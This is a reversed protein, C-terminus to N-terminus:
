KKGMQRFKVVARRWDTTPMAVTGSSYSGSKDISQAVFTRGTLTTFDAITLHGAIGVGGGIVCGKGITTSGAVGVMAAMATGAGIKVNHAIQVLNDIIVDDGIVTDDVAGRDICTNAGVRVRDGIVVKGLQAIREWGHESPNATPAFGFGDAGIVAGSHVICADGLVCAHHISVSHYIHCKKGITVDNELTVQNGIVSNDGIVVNAGIVSFAGISVGQGLIATPDIYATPHIKGTEQKKEFLQSICAYAVYPNKVVIPLVGSPLKNAFQENVLVAKAQCQALDKAFKANSLFTLKDLAQEDGSKDLSIVGAVAFSQGQLDDANLITQRKGIATLIQALEVM